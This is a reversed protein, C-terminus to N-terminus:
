APTCVLSRTRLACTAVPRDHADYFVGQWDDGGQGTRDLVVYGFRDFEFHVAAMRDLWVRDRTIAPSDAPPGVDGGTGVVLQAPRGGGFDYASFHHIHGSLILRVGTLDQGKVAAQETANLPASVAGLPGLRVVPTLGWIPRHVLLWGPERALGPQLANLQAAFAKVRDPPTSIDEADASDVIGLRLDGIDTRWASAEAPCTKVTPGADLLRFWGVGGRACSEHNGRVFIWPAALLLPRAPEFFDAAWAPWRDGAPSGQCRRDAAPCPSERYYYDGVHIILDPHRAAARRAVEAFPWANPDNCAQVLRGKIRCGTDAIVIIRRVPLRPADLTLGELELARADPPLAASCVAPFRDDAPSRLTLPLVRGDVRSSPCPGSAVVARVDSGGQTLQVWAAAPAARADGAGMAGAVGVTAVWIALPRTFSRWRALRRAPVGRVLVAKV